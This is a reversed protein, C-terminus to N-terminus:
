APHRPRHPGDMQHLLRQCDNLIESLPIRLWPEFSGIKENKPNPNMANSTSSSLFVGNSFFPAKSIFGGNVFVNNYRNINWNVGGKVTGGLFSKWPSKSHEADYYFFDRRQYSTVNLSGALITTIAGDLLRTNVRVM